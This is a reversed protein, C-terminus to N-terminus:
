MWGPWSRGRPGGGVHRGHRLRLDVATEWTCVVATDFNGVPIASQSHNVSSSCSGGSYARDGSDYTDDRGRGLRGNGRGGPNVVAAATAGASAAVAAAALALAAAVSTSARAAAATAAALFSAATSSIAVMIAASSTLMADGASFDDIGVPTLPTIDPIFFTNDMATSSGM